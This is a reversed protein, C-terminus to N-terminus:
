VIGGLTKFVADVAQVSPPAYLRYLPVRTALRELLSLVALREKKSPPFPTARLLMPLAMDPVLSECRAEKSRTLLFMGRLPAAGVCGLHEKGRWPNGFATVDEDQIHVMLKDGNLIYARDGFREQWLVAHTTKGTGSPALFAYANGGFVVTAAHFLLRDYAPLRAGLERLVATVEWIDEHAFPLAAAEARIAEISVTLAIDADAQTEYEELFAAVYDSQPTYAINLDAIRYVNM